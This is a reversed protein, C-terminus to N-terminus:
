RRENEMARRAVRRELKGHITELIFLGLASLFSKNKVYENAPRSTPISQRQQNAAKFDPHNLPPNFQDQNNFRPNIHNERSQFTDFQNANASGIATQNQHSLQRNNQDFSQFNSSSTVNGSNRFGSSYNNQSNHNDCESDRVINQYSPPLDNGQKFNDIDVQNKSYEDVRKM